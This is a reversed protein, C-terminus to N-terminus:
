EYKSVINAFKTMERNGWFNMTLSIKLHGLNKSLKNKLEEIEDDNKTKEIDQEKIIDSIKAIHDSIKETPKM